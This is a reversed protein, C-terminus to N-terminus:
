ELVAMSLRHVADELRVCTRTVVPTQKQIHRNVGFVGMAADDVNGRSAKLASDVEDVMKLYAQLVQRVEDAQDKVEKLLKVGDKDSGRGPAGGGSSGNPAQDMLHALTDPGIKGDAKLKNKKQYEKVADEMEPGFKGDENLKLKMKKNLLKQVKKVDSGSSNVKLVAAM